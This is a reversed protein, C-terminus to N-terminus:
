SPIQFECRVRFYIQVTLIILKHSRNTLKICRYISLKCEFFKLTSAVFDQKENTPLNKINNARKIIMPMTKMENWKMKIERNAPSGLPYLLGSWPAIDGHPLSSNILPLYQPKQLISPRPAVFKPFPPLLSSSNRITPPLPLIWSPLLTQKACPNSWSLLMPLTPTWGDWSSCRLTSVSLTLSCATYMEPAKQPRGQSQPPAYSLLM